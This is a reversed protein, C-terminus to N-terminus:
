DRGLRKLTDKKGLEKLKDLQKSTLESDKLSFTSVYGERSIVKFVTVSGAKFFWTKSHGEVEDFLAWGLM